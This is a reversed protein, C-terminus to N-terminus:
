NETDEDDVESNIKTDKFAGYELMPLFLDCNPYYFFGIDFNGGFRNKLGVFQVKRPIEKKAKENDAHTRNDVLLQLGWIGDASYEIFGSEKFSGFSIETNYNARNLSSIIIFTTNTRRRFDFIKHLVEDLASKTNESGAVLIQLYDICVIPPTDVSACIKELRALLADIDIKSEEWIYLPQHVTRFKNLAECYADRHFDNIKGLAIQTATLRFIEKGNSDTGAVQKTFNNTEIRAVERALLKSYLFGKAMEYSVFICHEGNQAMQDLLQLAFTTKGLAPLGGLIYVGPSFSKLESDLNEFYTKRDAYKQNETVYPQFKEIFFNQIDDGFLKAKEAKAVEDVKLQILDALKKEGQEILIKNADLKAAGVDALTFYFAELGNDAFTKCYGSAFNTGAKDNDAVFYVTPKDAPYFKKLADIIGNDAVGGTALCPYKGGSAQWISLADFEGETIFIKEADKLTNLGFPTRKGGHLYKVYNKGQADLREREGVFLAASYNPQIKPLASNSLFPIIVRPSPYSKENDLRSQPPTWNFDVGIQFEALTEDSLGRKEKQPIKDARDKSNEIDASILKQM